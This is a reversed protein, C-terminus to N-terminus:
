DDRTERYGVRENKISQLIELVVLADSKQIVLDYLLLKSRRLLECLDAHVVVIGHQIDTTVSRDDVKGGVRHVNLKRRLEPLGALNNRRYAVSGRSDSEESWTSLSRLLLSVVSM